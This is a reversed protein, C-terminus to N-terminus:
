LVAGQTTCPLTPASPRGPACAAPFEADWATVLVAAQLTKCLAQRQRGQRWAQWERWSFARGGPLLLEGDLRPLATRAQAQALAGAVADAHEASNVPLLLDIDSEAHLYALGTRWQWGHAGFVTATCGLQQLQDALEAALQAVLPNILPAGPSPQQAALGAAVQKLQPWPATPQLLHAPVRLAIRRRQWCWPAALGLAVEPEAQANAPGPVPRCPQRAVVLPLAHQSWHDLCDMVEPPAGAAALQTRALDWGALSLGVLDHRQLAEPRM